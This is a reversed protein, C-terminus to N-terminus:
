NNVSNPWFEKSMVGPDHPVVSKAKEQTEDYQGDILEMCQLIDIKSKANCTTLM